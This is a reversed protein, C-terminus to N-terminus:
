KSTDVDGADVDGADQDSTFSIEYTVDGDPSIHVSLVFNQSETTCDVVGKITITDVDPDTALILWLDHDSFILQTVGAGDVEVYGNMDVIDNVPEFSVVLLAPDTTDFAADVTIEEYWDPTEACYPDTVEAECCFPNEKDACSSFAISSAWVAIVLFTKWLQKQLITQMKMVQEM